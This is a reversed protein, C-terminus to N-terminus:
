NVTAKKMKKMTYTYLLIDRAVSPRACKKVQGVSKDLPIDRGIEAIHRSVDVGVDFYLTYTGSSSTRFPNASAMSSTSPMFRCTSLHDLEDTGTSDNSVPLHHLQGWGYM